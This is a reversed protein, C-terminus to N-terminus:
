GAHASKCSVLFISAHCRATENHTPTHSAPLGAPPCRHFRRMNSRQLRLLGSQFPLNLRFHGARDGIIYSELIQLEPFQPDLFFQELKMSPGAIGSRLARRPTSEAFGSVLQFNLTGWLAEVHAGGPADCTCPILARALSQRDGHAAGQQAIFKAACVFFRSWKPLPAPGSTQM